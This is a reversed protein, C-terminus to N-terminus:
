RGYLVEEMVKVFQSEIIPKPVFADFGYALLIERESTMASATLAIVPIHELENKKRIMKFADVGDIGPLAIDMLILNPIYKMAMEVAEEGDTAEIITFEGKLLAKVTLMNDPNDEVVLVIPKEKGNQTEKKSLKEEAIELNLMDFVAVQLAKRDVNGKQILQHIKNHKLFRLEEKTIHKATLILVPVHATREEERITQLVQFGDMVPMMLDLIMADPIMEDIIQLAESGDRAVNVCYGIEEMVDKIQIIAPESDDVVLITPRALQSKTAACQNIHTHKPKSIEAIKTDEQSLRKENPFKLPLLITFDTGEGPISSVEITGGLLESYRKSISLGLGTGGFRRSTSSDAQRFEEFILKLQERAIGIGTDAVVISLYTDQKDATITVHGKETFKVANGVINQIIHRCKDEDSEIILAEDIKEFKLEINKQHALPLITLSIEEILDQINFNDIELDVRGSEIRSIDLIDNILSLLNKGSREIVDMYSHEEEAIKGALRRNLVGSLAIISNLPTRLEHSMNSLFSTKLRNVESLQDKQMELERNQEQLEVSQTKLESQQTELEINNKELEDKLNRIKRYNLIGEIRTSMIMLVEDILKFTQDTFNTISALTVVAIVEEGSLIPIAIMERPIFSGYATSFVFRTDDPINRICKVKRTSIAMGIEGELSERQFAQRRDHEMGISEFLEYTKKDESLLYVAGVQSDTNEALETLLAKFFEDDDDTSLMAGAIRGSRDNLSANLDIFELMRNFSAALQGFENTSNITSRATLDGQQIMKSTNNLENLPASINRYVLRFLLLALVTMCLLLITTIYNLQNYQIKSEEYLTDGKKLAFEDIIMIETLFREKYSEVKNESQLNTWAQEVDGDLTLDVNNKLATKWLLYTQFADEVDEQPGLYRERLTIFNLEASAESREISEIAAAKDQDNEALILNRINLSMNLTENKINDLARRVQLPHEYITVNQNHLQHSQWYTEAGLLFVFLLLFM